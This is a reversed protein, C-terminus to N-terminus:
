RRRNTYLVYGVAIALIVVLAWPHHALYIRGLLPHAHPM